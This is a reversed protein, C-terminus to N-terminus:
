SKLLHKLRSFTEPKIDLYSALIKQPVRRLMHPHHTLYHLFRQRTTTSLQEFCAADKKVFLYIMMQRALKEAGAIHQLVYEAQEYRMSVFVTPEITEIIVTSPIRRHFSIESQILQGEIALQLTREEKGVLAYKRALGKVVLNLYEDTQGYKLVQERKGFSRLEFYPLYQNLEAESLPVYQQMFKHVYGAYRDIDSVHQNM